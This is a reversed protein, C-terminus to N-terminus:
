PSAASLNSVQTPSFTSLMEKSIEYVASCFEWSGAPLQRPGCVFSNGVAACHTSAAAPRSVVPEPMARGARVGRRAGEPTRRLPPFM